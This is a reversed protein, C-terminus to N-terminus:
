PQRSPPCTPPPSGLQLSRQQQQALEMWRESAQHFAQGTARKGEELPQQSVYFPPNNLLQTYSNMSEQMMQQYTRQQGSSINDSVKMGRGPRDEVGCVTLIGATPVGCGRVPPARRLQSRRTVEVVERRELLLAAVVVAFRRILSTLRALM